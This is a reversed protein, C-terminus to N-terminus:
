NPRVRYVYNTQDDAVFLSGQAGVALGTPRGIRTRGDALQFGGLFEAWQTTPDSWNVPTAPLDGHMRVYAVRPPSFYSGDANTHWSGHGSVFAGGRYAAPFAYAGAESMPYFAAAILTSYAPFEVRPIVTGSCDSGAVYAHQNEECAPWGYDARGAHLTLADFYEYPHGLPSNDQGAGGLWVTGTVPNTTIAIANRIRTAKTTMAAGDADMEQVTARTPDVEVCANCSSGVSAYLKGAAFTVSTSKHTDTDTSTHVLAGARVSAIPATLTATTQADAYAATYVGHQAGVAITCTEALFALGQVPADDVSTFVVPADAAGSAEANPVLWVDTGSTGVLLDGNPLAALQRAAPVTAIVEIAFGSPLTLAPAMPSPGAADGKTKGRGTCHGPNTAVAADVLARGADSSSRGADVMGNAGAETATAAAHGACGLAAVGLVPLVTRPFRFRNM